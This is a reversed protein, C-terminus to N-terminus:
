NVVIKSNFNLNESQVSIVYVGPKLNIPTSITGGDYSEFSGVMSIQGLSNYIKYNIKTFGANQLNFILNSNSYYVSNNLTLDQNNSLSIIKSYTYKTDFDVQKLRYYIKKNTFQNDVFTYELVSNSNGNGQIQAIKEFNDADYSRELVFYDNNIESATKWSILIQKDSLKEASFDLLEVPLTENFKNFAIAYDSFSSIDSRQVLVVGAGISQTTNSHTGNPILWDGGNRKILAFSNSNTSGNSFGTATLIIDATFASVDEANLTWYGNNLRDTLLSGDIKLALASIDIGTADSTFSCNVYPNGGDTLASFDLQGIQLYTLTGVPFYYGAVNTIRRKMKGNIWSNAFNTNLAGAILSSPNSNDLILTNSGTVIKGQNITITNSVTHNQELTVTKSHASKDIILNAITSPLGNGTVQDAAGIFGYTASSSFTRGGTVLINGSAASAAIGTSSGFLLTGGAELVFSGLGTIARTSPISYVGNSKITFTGGAQISFNSTSTGVSTGTVDINYYAKSGRITHSASTGAFEITGGTLNYAGNMDPLTRAGTVILRGGSMTLLTTAKGFTSSGTNLIKTDQITVSVINPTAGVTVEGSSKFILNIYDLGSKLKQNGAAGLVINGGTISYTGSLRPVDTSSADRLFHYEGGSMIFDGAGEIHRGDAANAAEILKGSIIELYGGSAITVLSSTNISFEYTDDALEITLQKTGSATPLANGSVQNNNGVYHYKGNNSFTRTGITQINGTAGSSSIGNLNGIKLKGEGILQFSGGGDILQTGINLTADTEVYMAQNITMGDNMIVEFGGSNDIRLYDFTTHGTFGQSVTSSAFTVMRGNPTFTGTAVREWYDQVELDGGIVTSLKLEGAIYLGGVVVLRFDTAEMDVTALPNISLDGLITLDDGFTAINLKLYTGSSVIVNYPANWETGRIYDGPKSYKLTSGNLYEPATNINGSVIDLTGSIQSLSTNFNVNYGQITFDYYRTLITGSLSVNNNIYIMSNDPIFSGNNTWKGNSEITISGSEVSLVGTPSITIESAIYDLNLAVENKITIKKYDPPVIGGLWTNGDDWYGDNATEYSVPTQVTYTYNSGSNNILNITLMDFDPDIDAAEKTTSFAYFVVTTGAPFAPISATGATGTFSVEILYSKVFGDTTYRIFVNEEACPEANATVAVAVPEWPLPSAPSFTLLTLSVPAASTEMFVASNNVYGIDQWNVTYYM